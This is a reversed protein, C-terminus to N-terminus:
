FVFRNFRMKSYMFFHGDKKYKHLFLHHIYTYLNSEHPLFEHISFYFLVCRLRTVLHM